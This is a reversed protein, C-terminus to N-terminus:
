PSVKGTRDDVTVAGTMRGWIEDQRCDFWTVYIAVLVGVVVLSFGYLLLKKM